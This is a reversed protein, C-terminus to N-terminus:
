ADAAEVLYRLVAKARADAATNAALGLRLLVDDIKGQAAPEGLGLRDAIAAAHEGQTVRALIELEQESLGAVASPESHRRAAILTEVLKADVLSGGRAVARIASVLQGRALHEKLLYARGDVGGALLKLGYRPDAFQSLVVVGIQPHSRRLAAAVQLGEDSNSPPMRIDTVVVDPDEADIARLLSERDNCSALIEIGEAAALVLEVTERILASDDAFVVGIARDGDTRGATGHPASVVARVM